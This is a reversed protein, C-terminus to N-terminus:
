YTAVVSVVSERGGVVEVGVEWSGQGRGGAGGGGGYRDDHLSVLVPVDGLALLLATGAEGEV